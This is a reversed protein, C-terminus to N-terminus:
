NNETPKIFTFVCVLIGFGLIGAIILAVSLGEQMFISVLPPGAAVGIFRASSYISTITGREGKDINETIMADLTPLIAGIALGILSTLLLLVRVNNEFFGVFPILLGMLLLGIILIMRMIILDGKINKGAMLSAICLVLLPIALIIGKKVGTSEM